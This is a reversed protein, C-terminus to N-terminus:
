ELSRSPQPSAADVTTKIAPLEVWTRTVLIDIDGDGVGAIEFKLYHGPEQWRDTIRKTDPNRNPSLLRLVAASEFFLDIDQSVRHHLWM